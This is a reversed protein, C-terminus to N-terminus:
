RAGSAPALESSRRQRTETVVTTDGELGGLLAVAGVAVVGGLVATAVLAAFPRLSRAFSMVRGNYGARRSGRTLAGNLGLQPDGRADAPSSAPSTCRPSAPSSAASRTGPAFGARARQARRLARGRRRGPVGRRRRDRLLARRPRREVHLRRDVRRPDDPAGAVLALGALALITVRTKAVPTAIGLGETVNHIMFGVILFTASSSSASRSRPASRSARASTTCASGSRSSSRSRSGPRLSAAADLRGALATM